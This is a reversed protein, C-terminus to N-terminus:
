NEFLQEVGFQYYNDEDFYACTFKEIPIKTRKSLALAYLFVQEAASQDAIKADPKYDLVHINNYRVQVIDIHGTLTDQISIEYVEKQEKTLEDPHLFIPLETSITASDNVLMFYEVKEHRETNSRALNQAFAALRPANNHKTIRTPKIHIKFSSCRPTEARFLNNPCNDFIETIYKRLQPFKKAAFNLKLQHYKLDYVQVHHFKKSKISSQPDLFYRKRLNVFTCTDQYRNLWSLITPERPDVKFRKRIIKRTEELTYGLNYTSIANLIVHTPYATRALPQPSFITNCSKCLYRQVSKMKAYRIGSKIVNTSRCKTCTPKKNPSPPYTERTITEDVSNHHNNKPINKAM